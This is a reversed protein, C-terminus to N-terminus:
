VAPDEGPAIVLVALGAIPREVGVGRIGRLNSAQWRDLGNGSTVVMVQRQTDITVDIGPTVAIVALQAVIRRGGVVARGAVVAIGDGCQNCVKGTDFGNRGAIVVAQGDLAVAGHPGPAVVAVSLQTGAAEAAGEVGRHLDHAGTPRARGQRVGRGDGRAPVMAQDHERVPRRYPKAIVGVAVQAVGAQGASRGDRDLHAHRAAFYGDADCGAVVVAEQDRTLCVPWGRSYQFTDPIAPPIRPPAALPMAAGGRMEMQWLVPAAPVPVARAGGDQRRDGQAVYRPRCLQRSTTPVRPCLRVLQCRRSM